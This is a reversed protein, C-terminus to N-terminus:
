ESSGSEDPAASDPERKPAGSANTESAPPRVPEQRVPQNYNREADNGAPAPPMPRSVNPQVNTAYAAYYSTPRPAKYLKGVLISFHLQLFILAFFVASVAAYILINLLSSLLMSPELVTDDSINPIVLNGLLVMFTICSLVALGIVGIMFLIGGRNALKEGKAARKVAYSLRVAGIGMIIAFAGFLIYNAFDREADGTTYSEYAASPPFERADYNRFNHYSEYRLVSISSFALIVTVAAAIVYTVSSFVLLSFGTTSSDDDIGRAKLYISLFSAFFLITILSIVTGFVINVTSVSGGGFLYYLSALMNIRNGSVGTVITQIMILVTLIGTAVTLTLFSTRSFFGKIISSNNSIMNNNAPNM